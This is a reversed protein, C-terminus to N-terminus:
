TVQVHIESFGGQGSWKMIIPHEQSWFGNELSWRLTSNVWTM